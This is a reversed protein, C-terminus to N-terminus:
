KDIAIETEDSLHPKVKNNHFNNLYDTVAERFKREEEKIIPGRLDYVYYLKKMSKIMPKVWIQFDPNVNYYEEFTPIQTNEMQQFLTDAKSKDFTAACYVINYDDITDMEFCTIKTFESLKKSLFYHSVLFEKFDNLELFDVDNYIRLRHPFLYKSAIDLRAMQYAQEIAERLNKHIAYGLGGSNDYDDLSEEVCPPKVYELENKGQLHKPRYKDLYRNLIDEETRAQATEIYTPLMDYLSDSYQKAQNLIEEDLTGTTISVRTGRWPDAALNSIVLFLICFFVTKRM